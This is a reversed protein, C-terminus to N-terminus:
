CYLLWDTTSKIELQQNKIVNNFSLLKKGTVDYIEILDADNILFKYGDNPNKPYGFESIESDITSM